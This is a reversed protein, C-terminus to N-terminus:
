YTKLSHDIDMEALEHLLTRQEDATIDGGRRLDNLFIWIYSFGYGESISERIERRADEITYAHKIM